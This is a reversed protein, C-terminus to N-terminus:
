PISWSPPLSWRITSCTPDVRSLLKRVRHQQVHVGISKLYAIIMSRGCTLGHRQRYTGIIRDLGIDSIDSFGLVETLGFEVVRKHITWRSVLFKDTINNWKFGLSRFYMPTAQLINVKPRGPSNRETNQNCIQFVVVQDRDRGRRVKRWLDESIIYFHYFVGSYRKLFKTCM